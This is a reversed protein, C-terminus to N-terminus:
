SQHYLVSSEVSFSSLNTERKTIRLQTPRGSDRRRRRLFSKDLASPRPPTRSWKLRVFVLVSLQYWKEVSAQNALLVIHQTRGTSKKSLDFHSRCRQSTLEVEVKCSVRAVVSRSPSPVERPGLASINKHNGASIKDRVLAILPGVLIPSFACLEFAIVRIQAPKETLLLMDPDRHPWCTSLSPRSRSLEPQDAVTSIRAMNFAHRMRLGIAVDCPSVFLQCRTMTCICYHASLCIRHM